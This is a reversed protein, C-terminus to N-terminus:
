TVCVSTLGSDKSGLDEGLVQKKRCYWIRSRSDLDLISKGLKKLEFGLVWKVYCLCVCMGWLEWLNILNWLGPSGFNRLLSIIKPSKILHSYSFGSRGGSFDDEEPFSWNLNLSVWSAEWNCNDLASSLLSELWVLFNGMALGYWLWHQNFTHIYNSHFANWLM